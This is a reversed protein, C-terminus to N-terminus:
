TNGNRADFQIAKFLKDELYRIITLSDEYQINLKTLQHNLEQINGKLFRNDREAVTARDTMTATQMRRKAKVKRKRQPETSKNVDTLLVTYTGDESKSLLKAVNLKWLATSIQNKDKDPYAQRVQESTFQPNSAMFEKVCKMVSKSKDMKASEKM